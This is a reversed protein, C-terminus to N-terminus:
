TFLTLLAAYAGDADQNGPVQLIERDLSWRPSSELFHQVQEAGERQEISCTSYVLRGGPRCHTAAAQLISQQLKCCTDLSNESYSWRADPRRQLVGTNSCPVDLLIADFQESADLEEAAFCGLRTEVHGLRHLTDKLREVRHAQADSSLLGAGQHGLQEALLASKGGPAACADWVQEGPQVQLLRPAILTSPDQVTWYGEAFGPIDTPPIGRKLIYMDEASSHAQLRKADVQTQVAKGSHTLRMLTHSREQNWEMIRLAEKDGFQRCWSKWLLDPHSYRIAPKRSEMWSLFQERERTARRLVGNLFNIQPRNISFRKALEVTEQVAAHDPIGSLHFLQLFGLRLLLKLKPSPPRSCAYDIWADLRRRHRLCSWVLERGLPNLYVWDRCEEPAKPQQEWEWLVFLASDRDPTIPM